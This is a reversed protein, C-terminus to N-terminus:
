VWFRTYKNLISQVGRWTEPTGMTAILNPAYYSESSEKHRIQRVGYLRPNRLYGMYAERVLAQVAFALPGPANDPLRYGGSYNVDIVGYWPGYIPKRYLTGTADELVWQDPITLFDTGDDSTFSAIDALVVPWRTLYLRQSCGDELQYFTEDVTEYGFVRNCMRAVTESIATILQQLMVDATTDTSPIMMLSKIDALTTLDNSAAPTIVNLIQQM